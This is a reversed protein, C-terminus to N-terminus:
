FHTQTPVVHNDVSSSDRTIVHRSTMNVVQTQQPSHYVSSICARVNM